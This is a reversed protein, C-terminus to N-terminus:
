RFSELPTLEEQLVTKEIRHHFAPLHPAIQVARQVKQGTLSLLYYPVAEKRKAFKVSRSNQDRSLVSHASQCDTLHAKLRGWM